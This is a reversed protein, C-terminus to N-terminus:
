EDIDKGISDLSFLEDDIRTYMDLRKVMLAFDPLEINMRNYLAEIVLEPKLNDVSGCSLKLNIVNGDVSYDYILPKIDIIKESKKTKKLVEISDSNMMENFSDAIQFEPLYNDRFSVVYDAAKVSAMANESKDPIEKFSLIKIGEVSNDNLLKVAKVSAIPSDIEIDCYDGESEMGIGLPLAFSMIQHPSMGTSYSIPIGSRRMLKQFFHMLDLHGIFKMSGTKSFKIRAKM